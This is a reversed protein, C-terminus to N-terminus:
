GRSKTGKKQERNLFVRIEASSPFSLCFVITGQLVKVLSTKSSDNTDYKRYIVQVITMITIITIVLIMVMIKMM